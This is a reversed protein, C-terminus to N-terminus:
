SLIIRRRRQEIATPSNFSRDRKRRHRVSQRRRTGSSAPFEFAAAFQHALSEISAIVASCIQVVETFPDNHGSASTDAHAYPSITLAFVFVAIAITRGYSSPM